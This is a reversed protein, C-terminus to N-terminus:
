LFNDMEEEDLQKLQPLAKGYQERLDKLHDFALHIDNLIEYINYEEQDETDAESVTETDTDENTVPNVSYKVTQPGYGQHNLENYQIQPISRPDFQQTTYGKMPEQYGPVQQPIETSSHVVEPQLHTNTPAKYINHKKKVHRKYNAKYPTKYDCDNCKHIM